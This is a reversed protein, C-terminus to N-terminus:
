SAAGAQGLQRSLREPPFFSVWMLLVASLSLVATTTDTFWFPLEFGRQVWLSCFFITMSAASGFWMLYRFIELRTALGLRHRKDSMRFQRWTECATWLLAATVGFQTAFGFASFPAGSLQLVLTSTQSDALWLVLLLCPAALSLWRAWHANPRFIRWIAVILNCAVTPYVVEVVRALVAQVLPSTVVAYLSEIINEAAALFWALGWFMEAAGRTHRSLLLLRVGFTIYMVAAIALCVLTSISM